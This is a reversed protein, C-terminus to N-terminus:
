FCRGRVQGADEVRGYNGCEFHLKALVFSLVAFNSRHYLGVTCFKEHLTCLQLTAFNGKKVVFHMDFHELCGINFLPVQGADEVRGYNGCEFHLKALM